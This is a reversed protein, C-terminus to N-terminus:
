VFSREVTEERRAYIRKGGRPVVGNMWMRRPVSGWVHRTVVKVPNAGNTCQERVKCGRCQEPSSKYQRYRQRNTPSYRM